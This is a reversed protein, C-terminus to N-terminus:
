ARSVRARPAEVCGTLIQYNNLFWHRRDSGDLKGVLFACGLMTGSWGFANQAGGRAIQEPGINCVKAKETAALKM